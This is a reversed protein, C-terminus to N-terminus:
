KVGTALPFKRIPIMYDGEMRWGVLPNEAVALAMREDYCGVCWPNEAYAAASVGMVSDCYRCRFTDAM